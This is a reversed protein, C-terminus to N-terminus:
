LYDFKLSLPVLCCRSDLANKLSRLSRLRFSFPHTMRFRGLSAPFYLCWLLQSDAAESEIGRPGVNKWELVTRLSGPLRGSGISHGPDSMKGTCYLGEGSRSDIWNKLSHISDKLSHLWWVSNCLRGLSAQFYLDGPDTQIGMSHGGTPQTWKFINSSAVAESM